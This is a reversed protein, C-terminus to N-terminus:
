RMTSIYAAVSNIEEATMREALSSMMLARDNPREGSQFDRLTKAVYFAYQGKIVPFNAPKNGLGDAGHCALCATVGSKKNGSLYLIKGAAVLEETVEIDEDEDLYQDEESSFLASKEAYYQSVAEIASDDLGQAMAQMSEDSRDAAKFALLQSKLYDPYQGALRPFLPSVSNGDEGHCGSCAAAKQKGLTGEAAFASLAFFSGALLGFLVRKKGM